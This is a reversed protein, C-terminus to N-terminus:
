QKVTPRDTEHNGCTFRIGDRAYIKTAPVNCGTHSCTNVNAATANYGCTMCTGWPTTHCNPERGLKAKAYEYHTIRVPKM